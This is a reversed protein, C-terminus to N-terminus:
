AHVKLRIGIKESHVEGGIAGCDSFAKQITDIRRYFDRHLVPSSVGIIAEKDNFALLRGNDLLLSRYKSPVFAIVKEWLECLEDASWTNSIPPDVSRYLEKVLGDVDYLYVEVSELPRGGAYDSHPHSKPMTPTDSKLPPIGCIYAVLDCREYRPHKRFQLRAISQRWSAASPDSDEYDSLIEALQMCDVPTLTKSSSQKHAKSVTSQSFSGATCKAECILSRVIEDQDDRCFAVMDSGFRGVIPPPPGGEAIIRELAHYAANHHRFPFVPVIWDTDLSNFNEAIIASFIEGFYGKLTKLDLQSPFEDIFSIDSKSLSEEELPDLSQSLGFANSWRQRADQHAECVLTQLEAVIEARSEPDEDLRRHHYKLSKTHAHNLWKHISRLHTRKPVSHMCCIPFFLEVNCDSRAM